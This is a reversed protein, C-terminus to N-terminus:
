EGGGEKEVEVGGEAARRVCTAPSSTEVGAGRM